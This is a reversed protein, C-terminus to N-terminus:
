SSKEYLIEVNEINLDTLLKEIQDHHHHTNIYIKSIGKKKLYRIQIELLSKEYLPWLPKPLIKGIDGMRTGLGASMIIATDIM